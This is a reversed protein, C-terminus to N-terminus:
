PTFLPSAAGLLSHVVFNAALVSAACILYSDILYKQISLFILVMGAEFPAGFM